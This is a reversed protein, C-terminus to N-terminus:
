ILDLAISPTQNATSLLTSAASQIIQQQIYNTSEEAVDADRITSLSSTQNITAVEISSLASEIKNQAAGLITVRESVNAMATDLVSLMEHALKEGAGADGLGACWNAVEEITYDQAQGGDATNFLATSTCKAFLDASLNIRSTESGDIGVQINYGEARVSGDMLKLGNYDCSNAIRTIEELRATIERSIALRSDEGYTDNSAQETLERIRQLHDNLLDYNGELTTLMDSGIQANDSAVNYSGLDAEMSVAISYGAADDMSSNIRYGTTMREIATNLGDTASQLNTRVKMSIINTNLTLAM